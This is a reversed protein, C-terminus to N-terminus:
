ALMACRPQEYTRELQLRLGGRHPTDWILIPANAFYKDFPGFTISYRLAPTAAVSHQCARRAPESVRYISRPPLVMNIM